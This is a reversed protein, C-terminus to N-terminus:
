SGQLGRVLRWVVENAPTPVGLRRGEAAIVGNISDIETPRGREVDQLMSSHNAASVRCIEEAHALPDDFPLTVGRAQAVALAEGVLAALLDRREPTTLLEGNPVRWLATLPNIAANALAKGWMEGEIADTVRTSL